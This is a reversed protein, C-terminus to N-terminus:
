WTTESITWLRPLVFFRVAWCWCSRRVVAIRMARNAMPVLRGTPHAAPVFSVFSVVVSVVVTLSAFTSADLRDSSFLVAQRLASPTDVRDLVTDVFLVSRLVLIVDIVLSIVRKSSRLLMLSAPLFTMVPSEVFIVCPSRTVTVGALSAVVPCIVYVMLTLLSPLISDPLVFRTEPPVIYVSSRGVLPFYM